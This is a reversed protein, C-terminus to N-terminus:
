LGDTPHFEYLFRKKIEDKPKFFIYKASITSM